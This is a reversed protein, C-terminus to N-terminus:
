VCRYSKKKFYCHITIIFSCLCEHLKDYQESSSNSIFSNIKKQHVYIVEVMCWYFFLGKSTIFCLVFKIYHTPHLYLIRLIPQPIHYKKVPSEKKYDLKWTISVVQKWLLQLILELPTMNKSATKSLKSEMKNQSVRSVCFAGM